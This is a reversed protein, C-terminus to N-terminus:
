YSTSFLFLVLDSSIPNEYLGNAIIMNCGALNCIKAAEIKTSTGGSGLETIGKINVNQIDKNLDNVEKILRADKPDGPIFSILHNFGRNGFSTILPSNYIILLVGLLDLGKIPLITM